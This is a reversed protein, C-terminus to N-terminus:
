LLSIISTASYIFTLAITLVFLSKEVGRKTHYGSGGFASGLGSSQGQLLIIVALVVSVIIQVIIILNV